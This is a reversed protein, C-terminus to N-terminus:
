LAESEREENSEALGRVSSRMVSGRRGRVGRM